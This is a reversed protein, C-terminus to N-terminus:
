LHNCVSILGIHVKALAHADQGVGGGGGGGSSPGHM